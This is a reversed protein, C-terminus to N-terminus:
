KYGYSYQRVESTEKKRELESLRAQAQNLAIELKGIESNLSKVSDELMSIYSQVGSYQIYAPIIVTDIIQEINPTINNL